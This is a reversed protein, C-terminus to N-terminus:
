RTPSSDESARAESVWANFADNFPTPQDVQGSLKKFSLSALSRAKLVIPNIRRTSIPNVTLGTSSNGDWDFVAFGLREMRKDWTVDLINEARNVGVYLFMHYGIPDKLLSLVNEPIPLGRWDFDALGIQVKYGLKQLRPLLYLHKRTCGSTGDDFIGEINGDAALAYPVDRVTTVLNVASQRNIEKHYYATFIEQVM